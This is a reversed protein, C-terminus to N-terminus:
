LTDRDPRVPLNTDNRGEDGHVLGPDHFRTEGEAHGIFQCPAAVLAALTGAAGAPGADVPRRGEPCVTDGVRRESTFGKPYHVFNSIKAPPIM